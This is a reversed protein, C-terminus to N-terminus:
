AAVQFHVDHDFHIIQGGSDAGIEAIDPEM